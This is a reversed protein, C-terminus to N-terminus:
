RAARRTLEYRDVDDPEVSRVVTRHLTPRDATGGVDWVTRGCPSVDVGVGRAHRSTGTGYGWTGHGVCAEGRDGSTGDLGSVTARGDAELTLLGGRGDSWTGVLAARPVVPPRYVTLVGTGFAVGGLVGTLVVATLGWLFVPGFARKRRSRCVLAPVTLAVATLPWAGAFGVPEPSGTVVTTAGVLVLSVAAAVVPVWWWVERGGFRRGLADSLAAIPLVLAVSLAAAAVAGVPPEGSNTTSSGTRTSNAATAWSQRTLGDLVSVVLALVAELLLIVTSLLLSLGYPRKKEM